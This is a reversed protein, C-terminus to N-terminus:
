LHRAAHCNRTNSTPLLKKSTLARSGDFLACSSIAVSSYTAWRCDISVLCKAPIAIFIPSVAHVGAFTESSAIRFPLLILRAGYLRCRVRARLAISRGGRSKQRPTVIVAPSESCGYSTLPGGEGEWGVGGLVAYFRLVSCKGIARPSKPGTDSKRVSQSYGGAAVM